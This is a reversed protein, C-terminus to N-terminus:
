HVRKQGEIILDRLNNPLTKSTGIAQFQQPVMGGPHTCIYYRVTVLDDAQIFSWGGVNIPPEVATPHESLKEHYFRSHPGGNILRDWHFLTEGKRRATKGKLFWHRHSVFPISMRQYYDIERGTSQLTTSEKLEATSWQLSGEIDRAVELLTDIDVSTEAKGYFCPIEELTKSWVQVNGISTGVTKDLRWGENSHLQQWTPSAAFATFILIFFNM